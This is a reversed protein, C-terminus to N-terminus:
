DAFAPMVERALLRMSERSEDLTMDGWQLAPAFYFNPREHLEGVCASVFDVVKAPTGVLLRTRDRLVADFDESVSTTRGELMRTPTAHFNADFVAWARRAIAIAEAETERIVVQRTVGAVPSDLHQNFVNPGDHKYDVLEWYRAVEQATRSLFNLHHRGAFDVGGAYWLPPYPRQFPLVDLPANPIQYFAGTHGFRGACLTEVLIRLTEETRQRGESPDLGFWELEVPRIGRGIGVDLRGASLNDLMCIEQVLRVPHYLPLIYVMTGIRLRTTAQALAALFVNPSPAMDLPTLHHEAIHYGVFGLREAEQLLEIKQQFQQDLPIGARREFHDWVGFRVRV